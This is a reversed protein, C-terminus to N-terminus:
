GCPRFRDDVSPGHVAPARRSAALVGSRISAHARAYGQLSSVPAAAQSRTARCALYLHQVHWRVVELELLVGRSRAAPTGGSPGTTEATLSGVEEDGIRSM